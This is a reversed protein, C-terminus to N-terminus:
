VREGFTMEEVRKVPPVENERGWWSPRPVHGAPPRAWEIDGWHRRSMKNPHDPDLERCARAYGKAFKVMESQIWWDEESKWKGDGAYHIIQLSPFSFPPQTEDPHDALNLGKWVIRDGEINYWELATYCQRGYMMTSDLFMEIERPGRFKGYYHDFYVADDTFLRSWAIWDEMVPGTLFYHRFAAEVEDRSFNSM